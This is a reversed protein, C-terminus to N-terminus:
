KAEVGLTLEFSNMKTTSPKTSNYCFEVLGLHNGWDKHDDVIYNHFYQNLMENVKEVLGNTQPHFVINFKLKTRTKKMLLTWFELKFKVNRYNVIVETMGNHWVWMDFFLKTTGMTTANIQTPAFKALKLFKDVVVFIADIGKWELLCIM